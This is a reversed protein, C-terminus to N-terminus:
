VLFIGIDCEVSSLKHVMHVQSKIRCAQFNEAKKAEFYFFVNMVLSYEIRQM